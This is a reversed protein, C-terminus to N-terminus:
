ARNGNHQKAHLITYTQDRWVWESNLRQIFEVDVAIEIYTTSSPNPICPLLEQEPACQTRSACHPITALVLLKGQYEEARKFWDAQRWVATHASPLAWATHSTLWRIATGRGHRTHSRVRNRAVSETSSLVLFVMRCMYLPAM